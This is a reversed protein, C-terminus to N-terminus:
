DRLFHSLHSQRVNERGVVDPVKWSSFIKAFKKQRAVTDANVTPIIEKPKIFRVFRKLEEYSSHESYPLAYLSVVKNRVDPAMQPHIDFGQYAWGTPKFALVSSFCDGFETLYNSLWGANLHKMPLVHLSADRPNKALKKTLSEMQLCELVKRKAPDVWIKLGLKSAIGDYIKEKGIMYSGVVILLKKNMNYKKEAIAVAVDIVKKQLPFNYFDDCFTTDLYVAEIPEERLISIKEMEECARFDGTHLIRRGTPLKFLFMVAGPCHNSELATVDINDLTITQNLDIIRVSAPSLGLKLIALKGTIKSCYIPSSFRRTLGIYHDYHFHSLFYATVGPLSGYSFADVAFPTGKILKFPPCPLRKDKRQNDQMKAMLSSWATKSNNVSGGIKTAAEKTPMVDSKAIKKVTFYSKISQQGGAMSSSMQSVSAAPPFEQSVDVFISPSDVPHVSEQLLTAQERAAETPNLQDDLQMGHSEVHGSFTQCNEIWERIFIAKATGSLGSDVNILASVESNILEGVGANGDLEKIPSSQTSYSDPVVCPRIDEAIDPKATKFAQSISNSLRSCPKTIGLKAKKSPQSASNLLRSCPKTIGLKVKKSPQSASNSLRSCPKTISLKVKKSPQSASNSLRSCPKAVRLQAKKSPQSQRRKRGQLDDRWSTDCLEYIEDDDM